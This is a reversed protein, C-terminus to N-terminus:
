GLVLMTLLFRFSIIFMNILTYGHTKNTSSIPTGPSFWLGTVLWQCVKDCLTIDLVCWWSHYEFECREYAYDRYYIDLKWYYKPETGKSHVNLGCYVNINSVCDRVKWRILRKNDLATTTTITHYNSKCSGTCDGRVNHTRIGSRTIHATLKIPPHFRLVRLFGCVQWLDNVYKIVYHQMGVMAIEPDIVTIVVDSNCFQFYM